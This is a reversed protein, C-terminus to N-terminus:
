RGNVKSAKKNACKHFANLARMLDSTLVLDDLENEQDLISDVLDQALAGLETKYMTGKYDYATVKKIAM